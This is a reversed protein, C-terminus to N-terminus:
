VTHSISGLQGLKIEHHSSELGKGTIPRSQRSSFTTSFLFPYDIRGCRCCYGFFIICRFISRTMFDIPMTHDQIFTVFDLTFTTHRTRDIRQCGLSSPADGAGGHVVTEFTCVCIRTGEM